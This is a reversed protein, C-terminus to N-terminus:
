KLMGKLEAKIRRADEGRWTSANSLFYLVVSKGDDFGYSEHVSNLSRMADLYPVAGFYINKWSHQIERAIEHLPRVTTTTVAIAKKM